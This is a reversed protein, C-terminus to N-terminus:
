AAQLLPIVGQCSASVEWLGAAAHFLHAPVHWVGFDGFWVQAPSSNGVAGTPNNKESLYVKQVPIAECWRVQGQKHPREEEYGRDRRKECGRGQARDQWAALPLQPFELKFSIETVKPM